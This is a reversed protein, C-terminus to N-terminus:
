KTSSCRRKMHPSFKKLDQLKLVQDQDNGNEVLDEVTVNGIQMEQYFHVLQQIFGTKNVEGRFITLEERQEHLIKRLIM